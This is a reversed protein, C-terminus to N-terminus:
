DNLIAWEVCCQVYAIDRVLKKLSEQWSITHSYKSYLFVSSTYWCKYRCPYHQSPRVSPTANTTFHLFDLIIHIIIFASWSEVICVIISAIGTMLLLTDTSHAWYAAFSVKTWQLMALFLYHCVWHKWYYWHM